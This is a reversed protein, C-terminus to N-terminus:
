PQPRALIDRAIARAIRQEVPNMTQEIVGEAVKACWKREDLQAERIGAEIADAISTDLTPAFLDDVIKKARRKAPVM